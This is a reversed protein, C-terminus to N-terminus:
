RKPKHKAAPKESQAKASGSDTPPPDDVILPPGGALRQSEDQASQFLSATATGRVVMEGEQNEIWLDFDVLYDNAERRKGTVRGRCTLVDGPWLIKLFKTHLRKLFPGKLWETLMQSFAGMALAGPAIVSRFGAAKAFPEDVYLPNFDGSAGAYRAIQIRDIPPSQWSPIEDGVQLGSYYIKRSIPM